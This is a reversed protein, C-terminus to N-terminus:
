PQSEKSMFLVYLVLGGGKWISFSTFFKQKGACAILATLLSYSSHYISLASLSESLLSAFSLSQTGGMEMGSMSVVAQIGSRGPSVYSDNGMHSM